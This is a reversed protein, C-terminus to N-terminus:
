LIMQKLLFRPLTIRKREGREGEITYWHVIDDSVISSFVGKIRACKENMSNNFPSILRDITGRVADIDNRHTIHSYYSELEERHQEMDKFRIGEPHKLFLLYVAKHIPSLVVETHEPNDLWIRLNEDVILGFPDSDMPGLMQTIALSTLGKKKLTEVKERIEQGLNEVDKEWDSHRWFLQTKMASLVNKFRDIEADAPLPIADFEASSTFPAVYFAKYLALPQYEPDQSMLQEDRGWAAIRDNFFMEGDDIHGARDLEERALAYFCDSVDDLHIENGYRSRFHLLLVGCYMLAEFFGDKPFPKFYYGIYNALEKALRFLKNELNDNKSLEPVLNAEELLEDVKALDVGLAAFHSRIRAMQQDSRIIDNAREELWRAVYFQGTEDELVRLKKSEAPVEVERIKQVLLMLAKPDHLLSPDLSDYVAQKLQALPCTYKYALRDLAAMIRRVSLASEWDVNHGTLESFIKLESESYVYKPLGRDSGAWKAEEEDLQANVYETQWDACIYSMTTEISICRNISEPLSMMRNVMADDSVARTKGPNLSVEALFSSKVNEIDCHFQGALLNFTDLLADQDKETMKEVDKGIQTGIARLLFSRKSSPGFRM